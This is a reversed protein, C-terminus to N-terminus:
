HDIFKLAHFDPLCDSNKDDWSRFVLTELQEIKDIALEHSIGDFFARIATYGIITPNTDTVLGELNLVEVEWFDNVISFAYELGIKAGLKWLDFGTNSVEIIIGQGKFGLGKYSEVIRNQSALNRTMKLEITASFSDSNNVKFWKYIKNTMKIKKYGVAM